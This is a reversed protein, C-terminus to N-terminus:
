SNAAVSTDPGSNSPQCAPETSPAAVFPGWAAEVLQQAVELPRLDVSDDADREALLETFFGDVTEQASLPLKSAAAALALEALLTHRSGSEEFRTKQWMDLLVERVPRGPYEWFAEFPRIWRLVAGLIPVEFYVTPIRSLDFRLGPPGGQGERELRQRHMVTGVGVLTGIMSMQHGFRSNPLLRPLQDRPREPHGCLLVSAPNPETSNEPWTSVRAPWDADSSTLIRRRRAEVYGQTTGSLSSDDLTQRFLRQEDALPHDQAPLYTMWLAVLRHSYASRVAQWERYSPPRAHIVLGSIVYSSRPRSSLARHIRILMEQLTGGTVTGVTLVLIHRKDRLASALEAHENPSPSSGLLVPETPASAFRESAWGVFQDFGDQNADESLVVIADVAVPDPNLLKDLDCRGDNRDGRPAKLQADVSQIFQEDTLLRHPYFRVGLRGHDRRLRTREAPDCDIGMGDVRDYMELLGSIDRAPSPPDPMALVPPEPLATNAFSTADIRVFPSREPDRCLGCSHKDYTATAPVQLWPQQRGPVPSPWITASAQARNVLSQLAWHGPIKAELSMALAEETRGTSSVSILALVGNAGAVLEVLEEDALRSHPYADRVAVPGLSIGAARCAAKLALVLPLMTSSDLMVARGTEVFPYLWTSLAEADRPSRFVDGVRIFDGQHAESPLEYHHTTPCWHARGARILAALEVARATARLSEDSQTGQSDFWVIPPPTSGPVFCLLGVPGCTGGRQAILQKINSLDAAEAEAAAATVTPHRILVHSRKAIIAEDVFRLQDAVEHEWGSVSQSGADIFLIEGSVDVSEFHPASRHPEIRVYSCADGAEVM